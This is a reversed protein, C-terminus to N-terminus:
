KLEKPLNHHATIHKIITTVAALLTKNYELASDVYPRGDMDEKRQNLKCREDKLSEYLDLMSARVVDDAADNDIEIKM